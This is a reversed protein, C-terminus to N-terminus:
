TKAEVRSIKDFQYTFRSRRALSYYGDGTIASMISSDQMHHDSVSLVGNPKLLDHLTVLVPAPEPLFYHLIDYLLLMDVSNKAAKVVDVSFGAKINRLGRENAATQVSKVALPHIDVAYVLGKPGALQAAAISFSGPGCGFDLVTMGAKVGAEELIKIPPNHWDRFRFKLSMIRFALNSQLPHKNVRCYVGESM